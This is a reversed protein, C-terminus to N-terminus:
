KRHQYNIFILPSLLNVGEFFFNIYYNIYIYNYIYQWSRVGLNLMYRYMFVYIIYLRM